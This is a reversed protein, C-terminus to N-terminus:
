GERYKQPCSYAQATSVSIGPKVEIHHYINTPLDCVHPIDTPFHNTFKNNFKLDLKGLHAQTALQQIHTKLLSIINPNSISHDDM